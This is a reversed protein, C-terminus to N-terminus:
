YDDKEDFVILLSFGHGGWQFAINFDNVTTYAAVDGGKMVAGEGYGYGLLGAGGKVILPYVAYGAASDLKKQLEEDNDTFKALTADVSGKMDAAYEDSKPASACGVFVVIALIAVAWNKM